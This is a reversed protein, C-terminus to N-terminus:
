ENSLGMPKQYALGVLCVDDNFVGEASFRISEDVLAPFLKPLSLDMHRQAAALLREEGFEESAPGEIEYLGDTYMVVADGPRIQIEATPYDAAEDIALAPGRMSADDLLWEV